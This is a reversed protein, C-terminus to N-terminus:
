VFVVLLLWRPTSRNTKGSMLVSIVKANKEQYRTIVFSMLDSFSRFDNKNDSAIMQYGSYYKTM